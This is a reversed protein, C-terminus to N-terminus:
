SASQAEGSKAYHGPPQGVQRSFAFSFASASGYGIQAAVESISKQGNRLLQKAMTMRWALLYDMPPAGVHRSFRAFFASRSLGAERALKAITWNKEPAAHMMRLAPALREDALGRLLGPAATTDPSSRLAEILLVQLLHELVVDRASRASHVENAVLRTLMALRDEGRVVVLDPLLSVLLAADPSGFVCHGVLTETDAAGSASGVRFSGDAQRVRVSQEGEVPPEISSMEFNFAAPVLAFDGAELIVPSKGEVALRASGALMMCYYVQRVETRRVRWRGSALVLKSVPAHPQLMTIIDALPDSM